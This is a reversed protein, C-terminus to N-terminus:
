IKLVSTLSCMHSVSGMSFVLFKDHTFQGKIHRNIRYESLREIDTLTVTKSIVTNIPTCM